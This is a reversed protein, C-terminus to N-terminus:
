GKGLLHLIFVFRRAHLHLWKARTTRMGFLAIIAGLPRSACHAIHGVVAETLRPEELQMLNLQNTRHGRYM